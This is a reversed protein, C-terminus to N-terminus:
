KKGATGDCRRDFVQCFQGRGSSASARCRNLAYEDAEAQTPGVGWGAGVEGPKPDLAGAVCENAYTAVVKCADRATRVSDDEKNGPALYSNKCGELAKTRAAEFNEENVSYGSSYAGRPGTGIAIAGDAFAQQALILGAAIALVARASLTVSM